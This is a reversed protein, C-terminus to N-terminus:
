GADVDVATAGTERSSDFAPVEIKEFGESTEPGAGVGGAKLAECDLVMKGAVCCGPIAVCGLEGANDFLGTTLAGAHDGGFGAGGFSRIPSKM